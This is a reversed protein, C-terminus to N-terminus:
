GPGIRLQSGADVQTWAAGAHERLRAFFAIRALEFEFGPQNGGYHRNKQRAATIEIDPLIQEAEEIGQAFSHQQGEDAIQHDFQALLRRDIRKM